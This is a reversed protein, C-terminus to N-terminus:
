NLFSQLMFQTTFVKEQKNCPKERKSNNRETENEAGLYLLLATLGSTKNREM